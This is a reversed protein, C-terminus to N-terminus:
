CQVTKKDSTACEDFDHMRLCVVLKEGDEEGNRLGIFASLLEREFNERAFYFRLVM